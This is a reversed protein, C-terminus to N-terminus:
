AGTAPRRAVLRGQRNFISVTDDRQYCAAWSLADRASWAYHTAGFHRATVRVRYPCLISLLWRKM